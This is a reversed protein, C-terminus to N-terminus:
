MNTKLILLRIHNFQTFEESLNKDPIFYTEIMSFQTQSPKHKYFVHVQQKM